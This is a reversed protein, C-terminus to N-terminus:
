PKYAKLIASRQELASLKEADHCRRCKRNVNKPDHRLKQFRRPVFHAPDTKGPTDCVSCKWTETERSIKRDLRRINRKRVQNPRNKKIPKPMPCFGDSLNIQQSM